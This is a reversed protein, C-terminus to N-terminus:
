DRLNQTIRVLKQAKESNLQSDFEPFQFEGSEHIQIYKVTPVVSTLFLTLLDSDTLTAISLFHYYHHRRNAPYCATLSRQVARRKGRISSQPFICICPSILCLHGRGLLLCRRVLWVVCNTM